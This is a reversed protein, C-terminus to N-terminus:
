TDYEDLLSRLEALEMDAAQRLVATRAKPEMDSAQVRARLMGLLELREAYREDYQAELERRIRAALSPSKGATSVGITLAGRQVTAPVIFSCLEPDDVVNVPIRRAQCYASVARNVERDDTAAIVAFAADLQAPEWRQRFIQVGDLSALEDCVEPAIVTVAAGFRLFLECKRLAVTGGGVIVIPKDGVDMMFPFYM